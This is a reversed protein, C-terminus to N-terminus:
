TSAQDVYGHVVPLCWGDLSKLMKAAPELLHHNWIFMSNRRNQFTNGSGPYSAERLHIINNQLTHTIDYSYSFYFSRSLDLNHFTALFRAEESERELKFRSSSSGPLSILETGDVQYIYHGGLMAVQSRKTVVLIYYAGTFKIFGLLGWSSCRLKLGGSSKNGDDVANLLQNMERKTYIVDDEVISLGDGKAIRDIKLIRFRRDLVDGGVMYFKSATEYLSFRYMTCLGGGFEHYMVDDLRQTTSSPSSSRQFGKAAIPEDDELDSRAYHLAPKPSTPAHNRLQPFSPAEAILPAEISEAKERGKNQHDPKIGSSGDPAEFGSRSPAAELKPLPSRSSQAADQPSIPESQPNAGSNDKSNSEPKASVPRQEM